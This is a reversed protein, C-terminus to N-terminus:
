RFLDGLDVFCVREGFLHVARLQAKGPLRIDNMRDGHRVDKHVETHVRGGNLRRQQVVRYLIRVDRKLLKACLEAVLNGLEHVTHGLEALHRKGGFFFKLRLIDAFHQQRHILVDANDDDLERVTQVIHAREIKHRRLLAAVDCELRKLDIRGNRVPETDARGLLLKLIQRDAKEIGDGIGINFFRKVGQAALPETKQLFCLFFYALANGRDNMVRRDVPAYFAHVAYVAFHIHLVFVEVLDIVDKGDADDYIRDDVAVVTQANDVVHEAGHGSPELVIDRVGLRIHVLGQVRGHEALVAHRELHLDAGPFHM